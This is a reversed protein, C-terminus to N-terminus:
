KCGTSNALVIFHLICLQIIHDYRTFVDQARSSYVASNCVGGVRCSIMDKKTACVTSCASHICFEQRLHLLVICHRGFSCRVAFGSKPVFTVRVVFLDSGLEKLRELWDADPSIENCRATMHQLTIPPCTSWTEPVDGHDTNNEDKCHTFRNNLPLVNGSGDIKCM